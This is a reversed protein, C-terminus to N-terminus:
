NNRKRHPRYRVLNSRCSGSYLDLIKDMCKVVRNDCVLPVTPTIKIRNSGKMLSTRWLVHVLKWHPETLSTVALLKDGLESSKSTSILNEHRQIESHRCTYDQIWYSWPVDFEYKFKAPYAPIVNQSGKKRLKDCSRKTSVALTVTIGGCPM